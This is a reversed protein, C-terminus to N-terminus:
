SQFPGEVPLPGGLSGQWPPPAPACVPPGTPSEDGLCTASGEDSGPGRLLQCTLPSLCSCLRGRQQSELSVHAQAARTMAGRGPPEACPLVTDQGRM